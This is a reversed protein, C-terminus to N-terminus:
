FGVGSGSILDGGLPFNLTLVMVLLLGTSFVSSCFLLSIESFIRSNKLATVSIYSSNRLLLSFLLTVFLAGANAALLGVWFKDM